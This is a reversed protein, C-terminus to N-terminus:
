NNKIKHIIARVKEYEMNLKQLINKVESRTPVEEEGYYFYDLFKKIQWSGSSTKFDVPNFSDGYGYGISGKGKKKITIGGQISHSYGKNYGYDCRVIEYQDDFREYGTNLAFVKPLKNIKDVRIVQLKHFDESEKKQDEKWKLLEPAQVTIERRWDVFDIDDRSELIEWYRLKAISIITLADQMTELKLSTHFSNGPVVRVEMTKYNVIEEREDYFKVTFLKKM